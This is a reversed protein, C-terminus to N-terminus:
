ASKDNKGDGPYLGDNFLLNPAKPIVLQGYFLSSSRIGDTAKRWVVTSHQILLIHMFGFPSPMGETASGGSHM